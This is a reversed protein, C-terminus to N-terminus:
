IHILSLICHVGVQRHLDWLEPFKSTVLLLRRNQLITERGDLYALCREGDFKVEYLYDPDDFPEGNEAILMPLINKQALLDAM